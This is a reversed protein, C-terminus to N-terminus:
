APTEDRLLRRGHRQLDEVRQSAIPNNQVAAIEYRAWAVDAKSAHCWDLHEIQEPGIGQKRCVLCVDVQVELPIQNPDSVAPGGPVALMQLGLRDPGPLRPKAAKVPNPM